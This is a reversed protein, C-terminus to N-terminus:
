KKKAALIPLHSSLTMWTVIGGMIMMLLLVTSMKAATIIPSLKFSCHRCTNHVDIVLPVIM